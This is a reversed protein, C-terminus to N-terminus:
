SGAALRRRLTSLRTRVTGDYTRGGVRVLLGGLVAPAVESRLEVERGAVARLAGVLARRQGETLATASTVEADVVGRRENLLGAYALSLEPLIPLRDREAVLDLLRRLLPSAGAREALAALLRRRPEAALAPHLLTRRLAPHEEILAVFGALEDRMAVAEDM